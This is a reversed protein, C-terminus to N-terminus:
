YGMSADFPQFEAEGPSLDDKKMPRPLILGPEALRSLSDLCDDHKAVPFASYEQELFHNVLDISRGGRQTYILDRPFWM